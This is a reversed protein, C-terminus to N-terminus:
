LNKVVGTVMTAPNRQDGEICDCTRWVYNCYALFM